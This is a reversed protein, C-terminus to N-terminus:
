PRLPLAKLVKRATGFNGIQYVAATAPSFTFGNFPEAMLADLFGTTALGISVHPSFNKGTHEAFATVYDIVAPHIDPESPTTYFAAATATKVTYPGAADIMDQQMRILGLTPEIVIGALGIPGLPIYYYEIADLAWSTFPENALVASTAAYVKPLDSTSVFGAYISTHAPRGADLPFGEPYSARLMANAARARGVMEQDPELAIVIATVETESAPQVM